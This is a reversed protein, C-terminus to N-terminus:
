KKGNGGGRRARKKKLRGELPRESYPISPSHTHTHACEHTGAPKWRGTAALDRALLPGEGGRGEERRGVKRNYGGGGM